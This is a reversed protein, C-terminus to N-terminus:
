SSWGLQTAGWAPAHISVMAVVQSEMKEKTAGWAPAHISVELDPSNSLSVADSGM